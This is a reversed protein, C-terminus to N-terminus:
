IGARSRLVAERKLRTFHIHVYTCAAGRSCTRGIEKGFERCRTIDTPRVRWQSSCERCRLIAYGRKVRLNEWTNHACPPVPITSESSSCEPTSVPTVSRTSCPSVSYTLPAASAEISEILFGNKQLTVTWIQKVVHKQPCPAVGIDFIIEMKGEGVQVAGDLGWMVTCNWGWSSMVSNYYRCVQDHGRLTIDKGKVTDKVVVTQALYTQVWEAVTGEEMATQWATWYHAVKDFM